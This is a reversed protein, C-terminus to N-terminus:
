PARFAFLGGSRTAVFLTSGVVVPPAAVPSGDTPLRMQAEGKERSLWHLTGEADGVVVSSGHVM